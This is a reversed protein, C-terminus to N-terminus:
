AKELAAQRDREVTQRAEFQAQGVKHECRDPWSQWLSLYTLSDALQCKKILAIQQDLLRRKGATDLGITAINAQFLTEIRGAM